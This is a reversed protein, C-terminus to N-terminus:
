GGFLQVCSDIVRGQMESVWLKAMAAVEASLRGHTQDVICKDIFAWGVELETRADALVFRTNQYDAVKRGFVSRERVYDRTLEFARTADAIGSLAIGLREKPLEKMLMVWGDNESGLLNDAPVRVDDFFLESTDAGHRGIKKLQRGRRFGERNAEVMILSIGEEDSAKTKAVVLVVDCSQGASIFTKSGNIIYHDGDRRARTAIARLDSGTGPETMAIAMLLEGRVLAPLMTSKQDESGFNILYDAMIGGQLGLSLSPSRIEESLVAQYRYDTLGLGGYEEPIQPGILGFEGAKLWIDRPVKRSARWAEENPEVHAENFKRATDRLLAHEEEYIARHELMPPLKSM